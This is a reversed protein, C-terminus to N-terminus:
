AQLRLVGVPTHCRPCITEEELMEQGCDCQMVRAMTFTITEEELVPNLVPLDRILCRNYNEAALEPLNSVVGDKNCPFRFGSLGDKYYFVMFYDVQRIKRTEHLIKM